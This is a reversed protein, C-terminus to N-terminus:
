LEKCLIILGITLSSLHYEHKIYNFTEEVKNDVGAYVYYGLLLSWSFLGQLFVSFRQPFTKSCDNQVIKVALPYVVSDDVPILKSDMDRVM